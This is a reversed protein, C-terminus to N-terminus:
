NQNGRFKNSLSAFIQSLQESLEFNDLVELIKLGKKDPIIFNISNVTSKKDLKLIEVFKATDIPHEFFKYIEDNTSLIKFLIEELQIEHNSKMMQSMEIACLMGIGVAMGHNIKFDTYVEIAHGFTHGFNLLKRPGSDFEDIEIFHKKAYLSDHILEKFEQHRFVEEENCVVLEILNSIRIKEFNQNRAYCIKIIELLGSFIEVNPLSEIFQTFIYVNKPPFYNGIINKRNGSNISSKGGICSDAMAQLTTPVFEWSIGRMYLSAALTVVDQLCGGGICLVKSSRKLGKKEFAELLYNVSTLNKNAEFISVLLIDGESFLTKYLSYVNQDLVILDYNKLKISTNFEKLFHVTYNHVKSEINIMKKEVTIATL